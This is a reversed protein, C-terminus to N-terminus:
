KVLMMKQIATFEKTKLQYFYLGSNLRAANFTVQHSGAVKIGSVLVAIERGTIDYVTITVESTVPLDFRVITSPNFPNPYNQYLKHVLPIPNNEETSSIIPTIVSSDVSQITEEENLRLSSLVVNTGETPITGTTEFELQLADGNLIVGTSSAGIIKITGDVANVEVQYEKLKDPLVFSKYSLFAPDYKVMVSFAFLEHETQLTIPVTVAEGAIEVSKKMSAMGSVTIAQETHPLEHIKGVVYQLILSADYASVELDQSVDALVMQAENLELMNALYRLIYGADQARVDGNMTVDGMPFISTQIVEIAHPEIYINHNVYENVVPDYPHIFAYQNMDDLIVFRLRAVAQENTFGSTGTTALRVYHNESNQNYDIAWNNIEGFTGINDISILDLNWDYNYSIEIAQIEEGSNSIAQVFVDVTDGVLGSAYSLGLRFDFTPLDDVRYMEPQMNVKFTKRGDFNEPETGTLMFRRNDDGEWDIIFPDNRFDVLVFKYELELPTELNKVHYVMDFVMPNLSDANISIYEADMSFNWGTFSGVVSPIEMKIFMSDPSFRGADALATMDVSFTLEYEPLGIGRLDRFDKNLVHELYLSTDVYVMRNDGDEWDFEVAEVFFKYELDGEPVLYTNQFIGDNNEDFLPSILNWGNFSGRVYVSRVAPDFQEYEIALSMDVTFTVEHFVSDHPIIDAFSYMVLQGNNFAGMVGTLDFKLGLPPFNFLESKVVRIEFPNGFEDMAPINYALTALENFPFSLQVNPVFVRQGQVPTEVFFDTGNVPVAVPMPENDGMHEVFSPNIQLLGNYVSLSGNLYVLMGQEVRQLSDFSVTLPTSSYIGIGATSDQIFFISGSTGYDPTTVVGIVSVESGIELQRVDEITFLQANLTTAILTFALILLSYRTKM